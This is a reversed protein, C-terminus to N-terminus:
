HASTASNASSSSKAEEVETFKNNIVTKGNEYILILRYAGGRTVEGTYFDLPFFKIHAQPPIPLRARKLPTHYDRVP